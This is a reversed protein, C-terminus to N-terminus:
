EEEKKVVTLKGNITEIRFEDFEKEVQEYTYNIDDHRGEWSNIIHDAEVWKRVEPEMRLELFELLIKWMHLNKTDMNFTIIPIHPYRRRFITKRVEVEKIYWIGRRIPTENVGDIQIINNPWGPVLMWGVRLHAKFYHNNCLQKVIKVPDRIMEIIKFGELRTAALNSWGQIFRFDAEIYNGEIKELEYIQNVKDTWRQELIKDQQQTTHELYYYDTFYCYHDKGNPLCGPEHRSQCRSHRNLGDSIYATGSKASGMVFGIAM